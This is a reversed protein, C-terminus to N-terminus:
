QRRHYLVGYKLFPNMVEHVEIIKAATIKAVDLPVVEVMVTRISHFSRVAQGIAEPINNELHTIGGRNTSRKIAPFSM